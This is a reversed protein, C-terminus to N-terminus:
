ADNNTPTGNVQVAIWDAVTECVNEHNYIGHRLGSLQLKPSTLTIALLEDSDPTSHSKVQMFLTGFSLERGYVSKFSGSLVLCLLAVAPIILFTAFWENQSDNLGPIRPLLSSPGHWACLPVLVAAFTAIMHYLKSSIRNGIAGAALTLTAEDDVGRVVLIKLRRENSLGGWAENMLRELHNLPFGIGFYGIFAAFGFFASVLLIQFAPAPVDDFSYGFFPAGFVVIPYCTAITLYSAILVILAFSFSLLRPSVPEVGLEVFPTALTILKPKNDDDLHKSALMAVTGGHSHGIVIQTATPNERHRQNLDVALRRAAESRAFFSNAGSWLFEHIAFNIKFLSLRASLERVFRSESQFWFPKQGPSKGPKRPFFGRGWTGHVLTLIIPSPSTQGVHSM